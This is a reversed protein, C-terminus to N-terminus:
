LSSGVNNCNDNVNEEAIYSFIQKRVSKTTLERIMLNKPRGKM